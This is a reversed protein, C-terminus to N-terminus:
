HANTASCHLGTRMDNDFFFHDMAFPRRLRYADKHRREKGEVELMWDLLLCCHLGDLALKAQSFNESVLSRSVEQSARM